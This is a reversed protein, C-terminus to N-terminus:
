RAYRLVALYHTNAVRIRELISAVLWSRPVLRRALPPALTVSELQVTLSGFLARIEDEGIGQVNRNRPNDYRLDYWVIIGTPRLVRMMEAAVARRIDPALISSFVTSQLVIDFSGREWPLQTADGTRLDAGPYRQRAEGVRGLDLDIGALRQQQAGFDELV